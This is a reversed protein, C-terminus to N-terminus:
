FIFKFGLQVQRPFNRQGRFVFGFNPSNPDNNPAGFIPTNFVNFAEARFQARYRETIFFSKNISMDYEPRWTVRIQASRLSTTRLTNPGRIAWVPNSCAEFGSRTPNPQRATGDLQKVCGNFWKDFSQNDVKPNGILDVNGPLDMPTGSMFRAIWNYEWGGILLNWGRGVDGGIAKGRGFPLQYVGSFIFVHTRDFPSIVRAPETDQDNLFNLAEVSKSWTYSGVLTLGSGFRKELGVQLSNYWIKGVNELAETVTTFQPFPLLLQRRQVNAGNLSTGPLLGAFPNSVQQTFYTPDQRARALQELTPVNINRAGGVTFDGTLLDRSRSGAYSVELKMQWPLQRQIGLSFQHVQPIERDPNSFQISTGAQTLLGQTAGIPTFLGSPFPNGLTTAPIFASAGGGSTAVFPTTVSFGLAGGFEAQPFYYLGYGGRLVTKEDLRYAFGVRPQINNRDQNFAADPQGGVGAFLLGGRLNTCAPCESIGARGKISDALPSTQDFGFGRNQRNYRETPAGEYDYRLGLNLSLKQSLKFDDQVYVAYYGWRYSVPTLNDLQGGNPYGLLLSAIASGSTADGTQPDKRTFGRDFTFRGGGWSFSAGRQNVRIDRMEAGIKYAHKGTLWSVSGQFSLTNTVNQSPNRPGIYTYQEFEVRPVISTPRAESFSAPFGFETADFPTSRTRYAAQVYRTYSTRLNLIMTPSLTTVSDIVAGHNERVLPDQADVGIGTIGNAPSSFQERKNNAYRFYMRERAGFDQDVRAVYSHFKDADLAPSLIFNNFRAGNAGTNAEPLLKVLALGVASLRNAPIKNGPFPDRIFKGPNNPDPRTTLPDYVTIGSQSFDGQRELATPVSTVISSPVKENYRQMTFMFFTKEKGNYVKPIWVPGSLFFGYDDLRHGGLNANTIADRAFRAAVEQGLRPDNAPVIVDPPKANANTTYRGRANNAFQNADWQYRRIFDYGTGHFDNGGSKMTVNIIGGSTRGYQADYTNTMVKFEDTADVPPVFAITNSGRARNTDPDQVANNPAGDLLFENHRNLGGNISFQANDGNDFPRFFQPNGNYQVGPALTALMIPNRGANLPLENVRMNEIVQGRTATDAELLPAGASVMVTQEVQGVELTVDLTVKDNVHLELNDRVSRKFGAAEVTASYRGPILFPVTYNGEDSTTQVSEENTQLNKIIVKAGQIAAGSPDAVRGTVTARFEQPFGMVTLNLVIVAVGFLRWCHKRRM